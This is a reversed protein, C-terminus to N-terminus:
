RVEFRTNSRLTGSSTTVQVFGTTAGAPVIASILTPSFVTFAAATGNFTVSTAGTLDSALIKIHAGVKDVSPLPEVFPGLGVSLSFLTGDAGAVNGNTPAEGYFRGDTAQVLGSPNCGDSGAFRHLTTLAGEPTMRFITGCNSTSGGSNAAGYFNGDTGEVFGLPSQGDACNALSCFNYLTTFAGATTIKFFTGSGDNSGGYYSTGYLIGNGAQVMPACPVSCYGDTGNFSHLTTLSGGLTLKFATGLSNAGGGSTTGYLNGDIGSTLQAIPVGGDACNAQSCFNYIVKFAGQPTVRYVAGCSQGDPSGGCYSPNSNAGGGAMVGYFNEDAGRVVGPYSYQAGCSFCFSYLPTLNGSPTIKFITGDGGTGYSGTTGYLSGDTGLSLTGLENPNAGDACNAQSCFFYFTTEVGGPTLKFVVGCFTDCDPSSGGAVTTGYLNGDLGQVLNQEPWQGDSGDFTFLNKFVVGDPAENDQARSVAAGTLMACLLILIKWAGITPAIRVLTERTTGNKM